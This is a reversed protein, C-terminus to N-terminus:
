MVVVAKLKGGRTKGAGRAQERTREGEPQTARRHHGCQQHNAAARRPATGDVTGAHTEKKRRGGQKQKRERWIYLLAGVQDLKLCAEDHVKQAKSREMQGNSDRKNKSTTFDM